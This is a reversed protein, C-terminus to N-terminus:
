IWGVSIKDVGHNELNTKSALIKISSEAKNGTIGKGYECVDM